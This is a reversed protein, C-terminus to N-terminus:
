SSIPGILPLWTTMARQWQESSTRRESDARQTAAQIASEASMARAQARRAGHIDTGHSM